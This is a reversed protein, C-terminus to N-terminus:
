VLEPYESKRSGVLLVVGAIVLIGGAYPPWNVTKEKDASIHVPGADLVKERRTFSFGTWVLMIIGSVLLISGLIKKM